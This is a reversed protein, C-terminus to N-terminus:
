SCVTIKLLWHIVSKYDAEKSNHPRFTPEQPLSSPIYTKCILVRSASTLFSSLGALPPCGNISFYKACSLIHGPNYHQALRPWNQHRPTKNSSSATFQVQYYIFKTWHYDNAIKNQKYKLWVSHSCPETCLLVKDVSFLKRRTFLYRLERSM